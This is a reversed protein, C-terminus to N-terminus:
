RIMAAPHGQLAALLAENRAIRQRLLVSDPEARLRVYLSSLVQEVTKWEIERLLAAEEAECQKEFAIRAASKPKPVEQPWTQGLGDRHDGSHQERRICPIRHRGIAPGQEWGPKRAGCANAMDHGKEKSVCARDWDGFKPRAQAM